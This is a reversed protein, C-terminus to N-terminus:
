DSASLSKAALRRISFIAPEDLPASASADGTGLVTDVVHEAWARSGLASALFGDSAFGSPDLV